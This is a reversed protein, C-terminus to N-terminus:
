PCISYCGGGGGGSIYATSSLTQVYAGQTLTVSVNITRSGQYVKLTCWNTTSTCGSYVPYGPGTWAYTSSVTENQVMFAVSYYGDAAPGGTNSCTQYFNFQTGPAIRCGLWEGSASANGSSFLMLGLASIVAIFVALLKRM